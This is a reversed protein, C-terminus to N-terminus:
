YKSIIRIYDRVAQNANPPQTPDSSPPSLIRVTVKAAYDQDFGNPSTEVQVLVQYPYKMADSPGGLAILRGENDAAMTDYQHSTDLDINFSFQQATGGAPQKIVLHPYLTQAQSELSSFIDQAIQRARTEDQASHGTQLGIPLVGIIAVIAFGVVGLAIVVEVLSFGSERQETM